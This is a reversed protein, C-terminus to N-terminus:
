DAIISGRTLVMRNGNKLRVHLSGDEDMKEQLASFPKGNLHDASIFRHTEGEGSLRERYDQMSFSPTKKLLRSILLAALRNKRNGDQGRWADTRIGIGLVLGSVIGTEMDLSQQTLIGATKKEDQLISNKWLIRAAKGTVAEIAEATFLAALFSVPKCEASKPDLIVSLYVGGKPSYFGSQGHGRGATQSETLIVTGYLKERDEESAETLLREAERNTSTLEPYFRIDPLSRMEIKLLKLIGEESLVDSKPSLRYGRRSFSEIIYGDDRLNQVAKWVAGRSLGLKDGLEEGSLFIDRNEELRNLVYEKTNM